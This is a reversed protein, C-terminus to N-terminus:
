TTRRFKISSCLLGQIKDARWFRNFMKWYWRSLIVCFELIPFFLGIVDKRQIAHGLMVGYVGDVPIVRFFENVMCMIWPVAALYTRPM